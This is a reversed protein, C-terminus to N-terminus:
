AATARLSEVHRRIEEPSLYIDTVEFDKLAAPRRAQFGTRM